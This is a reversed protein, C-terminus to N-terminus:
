SAAAYPRHEGNNPMPPGLGNPLNSEARTSEHDHGNGGRPSNPWTASPRVLDSTVQPDNTDCEPVANVQANHNNKPVPVHSPSVNTAREDYTAGLNNNVSAGITAFTGNTSPGVGVVVQHDNDRLDPSTQQSTAVTTVPYEEEPLNENQELVRANINASANSQLPTAPILEAQTPDTNSTEEVGISPDNPNPCAKESLTTEQEINNLDDL